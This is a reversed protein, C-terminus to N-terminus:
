KARKSLSKLRDMLTPKKAFILNHLAWTQDESHWVAVTEGPTERPPEMFTSYAPLLYVGPERPSMNALTCGVYVKTDPQWSYVYRM